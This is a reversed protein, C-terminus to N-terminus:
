ASEERFAPYTNVLFRQGNAAVDYVQGRSAQVSIDFLPRVAGVEFTAGKGNTEASMLKQDPSLYFIEATADRYHSAAV